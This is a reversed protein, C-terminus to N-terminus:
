RYLVQQRLDNWAPQLAAKYQAMLEASCVNAPMRDEVKRSVRLVRGELRYSSEYSVLPGGFAVDDPVALVKISEPLTIEYEESSSGSFCLSKHERAPMAAAQLFRGVPGESFLVPGIMFAGSGPMRYVNKVKFEGGYSYDSRPKSADAYSLTGEGELKAGAFYRKLVGKADDVSLNKFKNRADMGFRGRVTVEARGSISGDKSIEMVTKMQQMSVGRDPPTRAPLGPVAALVPKDQVLLPLEGYPMDADTSDLFLGLAPVYNIVHNVMSLVPLTGLEFSNGANVLVQHSEIGKATLLAELLTAHDKCDGMRNDLVFELDRPVVAGIGVCNGAYTIERAVWDYLARAQEAPTSLGQTLQEALQRVRPTPVAKFRAREVYRQAIEAHSEFSSVAYGPESEVDYVSYDERESRLPLKNEFSMEVLRRAGRQSEKVKMGRAAHRLALAVPVDFSVTVKDYAYQRPFSGFHSVKGPFLPQTTIIKYTLAVADGVALDPFVLTTENWDSFVAQAGTKGSATRLQFNAKPVTLKRGDAKRTYAEVIELRQASASHSLKEAKLYELAEPKLVRTQQSITVTETGDANIIHHESYREMRSPLDLRSDDAARAGAHLLVAVSLFLGARALLNKM